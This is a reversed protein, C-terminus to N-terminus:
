GRLEVVRATLESWPEFGEFHRLCEDVMLRFFRRRSEETVGALHPTLFVNPLDLLPADLPVPEPDFVDLCAVVDGRALRAALASAEIVRGRSVNVLVAGPRLRDLEAAGLMGETRSTLPVLVFVVDSELVRELSAFVVRYPEALERPVFPDFVTAEVEFPALLEILRRGVHGFGILGVRKRALEAGDYGPGHRLEYPFYTQEHAIMLRFFAGANRLGVLALGLAWEATPWSSGQSTDVVRVGHAHAAEVDLRHAFRDGDLEGLLTLRSARSLVTEGVFPAGHCVVLVDLSAAFEALEAEAQADRRARGGPESDVAFARYSFDAVAALRALDTDDVYRLRVDESCALGVLRSGSTPAGGGDSV